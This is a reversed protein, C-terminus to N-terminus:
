VYNCKTLRRYHFSGFVLVTLDRVYLMARGNITRMLFTFPLDFPIGSGFYNEGKEKKRKKKKKQLNILLKGNMSKIFINLFNGSLVTLTTKVSLLELM